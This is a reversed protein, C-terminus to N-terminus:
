GGQVELKRRAARTLVRCIATLAISWFFPWLLAEPGSLELYIRAPYYQMAAFPLAAAVPGLLGPLLEVPVMFGSLGFTATHLFQIAWRSRITWFASIGVIYHLCLGVYAALAVAVVLLAPTASRQPVHVGVALAFVAAIPMTRFLFSYWVNGLERAVCMQHYDLPRAMEMAVAGSSVADPIGLGNQRFLTIWLMAQNFAVYHAFDLPSYDGTGGNVTAAQWIAVYIFGFIVSAINTVVHSARYELNRRFAKQALLAYARAGSAANSSVM